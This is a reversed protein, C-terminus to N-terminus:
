AKRRNRLRQTYAAVSKDFAENEDGSAVVPVSVSGAIVEETLQLKSAGALMAEIKEAMSAPQGTAHILEDGRYSFAIELGADIAKAQALAVAAAKAQHPLLSQGVLAKVHATASDRIGDAKALALGEKLKRNEEILAKDPEIRTAAERTAAIAAEARIAPPTDSSDASGGFLYALARM